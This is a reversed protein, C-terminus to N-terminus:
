YVEKKLISLQEMKLRCAKDREIYEKQTTIGADMELDIIISYAMLSQIALEFIYGFPGEHDMTRNKCKYYRMMYGGYRPDKLPESKSKLVGDHDIFLTTLRNDRPVFRGITLFRWFDETRTNALPNCYARYCNDRIIKLATEHRYFQSLMIYDDVGDRDDEKGYGLPLSRLWSFDINRMEIRAANYRPNYLYVTAYSPDYGLEILEKREAKDEKYVKYVMKGWGFIINYM